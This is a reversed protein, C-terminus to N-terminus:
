PTAFSLDAIVTQCGGASDIARIAIVNQGAPLSVDAQVNPGATGDFESAVLVGNVHVYLDDDAGARITGTTAASLVFTKRLYITQFDEPDQGWVQLADSGPMPTFPLDGNCLGISPALVNLWASDDFAAAKWGFEKVYSYRWTSDSVIHSTGGSDGSECRVVSGSAEYCEDTGAGGDLSDVGGGGILLDHGRGGRLVDRGRSGFLSDNGRGGRLVDAGGFGVLVDDGRLGCIVDRQATGVLRDNGSTGIITCSAALDAWAGSDDSANVATGGGGVLMASLM